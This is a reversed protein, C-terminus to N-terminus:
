AGPNEILARLKRVSDAQGVVLLRDGVHLTLDPSPSTTAAGNRHLAVVSAGTRRRVELSALTAGELLGAGVELWVSGVESLVEALWPDLIAEPTRLFVYGEERLEASFRAASDEPVGFRHLMERLLELTSELDQAVVKTAGASQLADVHAVYHTRALIIARPALRRALSVVERTAEFDPLAVVVLQARATGVRELISRRTADGFVVPEGRRTAERVTVANTEIASYSIGQAKLVRSLNQGTVGFGVLVVHDGASAPAESPAAEGRDSRRSLWSAVRPASAILFPTALLTAISGAIFVQRLRADLLGADAAAAALVFSFEGTQALALGTLVGIRVSLRLVSSVILTVLGAKLVVVGVTYALVAPWVALAARPDFLMGVATFFVGLLVGRLPAVEAFLQHSYPSASLVLGGVFAGVSHTLGIKEAIVASGMVVLFAVMTFLERSRALAVRDLLRPLLVRALVGLLVLAGAARLIAGALASTGAGTGSALIPVALLFPVICLDQFLLIGLALQGHPADIESRKSLLRMVLATSSMAVLAGLVVASRAELGLGVSVGATCAVTLAVQFGGAVLARRWLRRVRDLPLELGIEFLLFVVGFEALTRVRDVDAILSLGGPGVLAGMVLFGGILPLRLRAFLAAGATAVALLLLVESLFEHPM